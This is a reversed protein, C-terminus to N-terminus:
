CHRMLECRLPPAHNAGCVFFFAVVVSVQILPWKDTNDIIDGFSYGPQANGIDILGKALLVPSFFALIYQGIATGGGTDDDYLFNATLQFFFGIVFVFFGM